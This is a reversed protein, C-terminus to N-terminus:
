KESSTPKRLVMACTYYKHEAECSENGTYESYETESIYKVDHRKTELFVIKEDEIRNFTESRYGSPRSTDRVFCEADKSIQEVGYQKSTLKYSGKHDSKITTITAVLQVHYGAAIFADFLSRDLPLLYEPTISSYPYVHALPLAMACRTDANKVKVLEFERDVAHIIKQLTDEEYKGHLSAKNAVIVIDDCGLEVVVDDEEEEESFEENRDGDENNDDENKETNVAKDSDGKKAEDKPESDGEIKATDIM